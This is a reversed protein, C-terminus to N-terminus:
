DNYKELFELTEKDYSDELECNYILEEVRYIERNYNQILELYHKRDPHYPNGDVLGQIHIKDNKIITLLEMADRIKM